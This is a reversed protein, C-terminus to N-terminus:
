SPLIHYIFIYIYVHCILLMKRGEHDMSRGRPRSSGVGLNPIALNEEPDAVRDRWSRIESVWRPTPKPGGHTSPTWTEAMTHTSPPGLPPKRHHTSNGMHKKKLPPSTLSRLSRPNIIIIIIIIIIRRNSKNKREFPSSTFFRYTKGSFERHKKQNIKNSIYTFIATVRIRNIHYSFQYSSVAIITISLYLFPLILHSLYFYSWFLLSVYILCSKPLLYLYRRGGQQGMNDYLPSLLKAIFFPLRGLYPLVAYPFVVNILITISINGTLVLFVLSLVFYMFLLHYISAIIYYLPICVSSSIRCELKQRTSIGAKAPPLKWLNCPKENKKKNKEHSKWSKVM